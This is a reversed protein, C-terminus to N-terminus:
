AAETMTCQVLGRVCPIILPGALSTELLSIVKVSPLQIFPLMFATEGCAMLIAFRPGIEIDCVTEM